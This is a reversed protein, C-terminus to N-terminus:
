IRRCREFRKMAAPVDVGVAGAACVGVVADDPVTDAHCGGTGSRGGSSEGGGVGGHRVTGRIGVLVQSAKELLALSVM